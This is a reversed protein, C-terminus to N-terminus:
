AVVVSPVLTYTATVDVNLDPRFEYKVKYVDAFRDLFGADTVKEAMGELIVAEDGNELHVVIKPDGELNRAKRSKADTGVTFAGEFWIGWVPMIHPRGGTSATAVWQWPLLKGETIPAIGYGEPGVPRTALADIEENSRQQNPM